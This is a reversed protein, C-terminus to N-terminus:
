HHREQPVQSHTSPIIQRFGLVLVVELNGDDILLVM